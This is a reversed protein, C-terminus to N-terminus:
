NSIIIKEKFISLKETSKFKQTFFEILFGQSKKTFYKIYVFTFCLKKLFLRICLDLHHVYQREDGSPFFSSNYKSSVM